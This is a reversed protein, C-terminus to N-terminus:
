DANFNFHRLIIVVIVQRKGSYVGRGDCVPHTLLLDHM